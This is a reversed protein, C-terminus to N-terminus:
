SVRREGCPGCQCSGDATEDAHACDECLDDGDAKVQEACKSCFLRAHEEAFEDVYDDGDTVEPWCTVSGDCHLTLALEGNYGDAWPRVGFVLSVEITKEALECEGKGGCHRCTM